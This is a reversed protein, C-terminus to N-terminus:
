AKSAQRAEWEMEAIKRKLGAIKMAANDSVGKRAYRVTKTLVKIESQIEPITQTTM